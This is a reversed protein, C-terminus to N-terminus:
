QVLGEVLETNFYRAYRSWELTQDAAAVIISGTKSTSGTTMLDIGDGLGAFRTPESSPQAAASGLPKERKFATISYDYDAIGISFSFSFIAEGYMQGGEARGLRVYLSTAFHFIWISASGGAFFTGYIETTKKGDAKLVRVFVGAQIRCQAALPGFGIGAGGGYEFSAEFGRVGDAAAYISFYGSGVFPLVGMTFPSLRRGLSVKFLSEENGFPLEASVNLTVNFFSTVGVGITGLNLSYGAEIGAGRTMPQVFVGNGDKPSLYSQLQQAFKLDKGIEFDQYVVDFRASSNSRVSFAAGGFKLRLADIIDGILFIDFPGVHASASFDTKQKLLDVSGRLLIGFEGGVKPQFIARPSSAKDVISNFDYSFNIKTPILAAIADEIQDRFAGLDIAAFVEGRLLDKAIGGAQDIIVLPAAQSSSWGQFMVAVRRRLAPRKGADIGKFGVAEAVVKREQDLRDCAILTDLPLAPNEVNCADLPDNESPALGLIPQVLLARRVFPALAQIASANDALEKRYLLVKDYADAITKFVPELRNEVVIKIQEPVGEIRQKLGRLAKLAGAEAGRIKDAAERYGGGSAVFDSLKEGNKSLEADRLGILTTPLPEKLALDVYALLVDRVKDLAARLNASEPTLPLGFKLSAAALKDAADAVAAVGDATGSVSVGILKLAFNVVEVLHAVIKKEADEAEKLRKRLEDLDMSSPIVEKVAAFVTALVVGGTLIDRQEDAFKSLRALISRLRGGISEGLRRLTLLNTSVAEVSIPDPKGFESALQRAAVTADVIDAYLRRLADILVVGFDGGGEPGAVLERLKATFTLLKASTFQPKGFDNANKDIEKDNDRIERTVQNLTDDGGGAFDILIKLAEGINLLLANSAIVVNNDLIPPELFPPTGTKLNAVAAIERLLIAKAEPTQGILPSLVAEHVSKVAASLPTEIEGKLKDTVEVVNVGLVEQAFAGSAQLVAKADGDKVAKAVARGNEIATRIRDLGALLAQLQAPALGGVFEALASELQAQFRDAALVLAVVANDILTELDKTAGAKAKTAADQIEIKAAAILPLTRTKVDAVYARLAAEIAVKIDTNKIVSLIISKVVAELGDRTAAEVEAQLKTAITSVTDRFDKVAQRTDGSLLDAVRELDPPLVGLPLYKGVESAKDAAIGSAINKYIWATVVGAAEDAKENILAEKFDQLQGVIAVLEDLVKTLAIIRQRLSGIVAQEFRAIPDAALSALRRILERAAAHVAALKPVLALTDETALAENLATEVKSLAGTGQGGKVVSPGDIEPYLDKLSIPKVDQSPTTPLDISKAKLDDDLKTWKERLLAVVDRLPTLVRTRLDNAISGAQEDATRAAASGFELVEKLAPISELSLGLLWMMDKLKITGLLKADLSFYSQIQALLAAAKAIEDATKDKDQDEAPSTPVVGDENTEPKKPEPRPVADNFYPALSVLKIKGALDVSPPKGKDPGATTDPNAIINPGSARWTFEDGGLPGDIGVGVYYSEPRAIGGSRDGNDDMTHHLPEDRVDLFIQKPNAKKGEPAPHGRPTADGKLGYLVYHGDFQVDAPKKGSGSMREVAGLRITAYELSPYFPPQSAGELVGTTAYNDAGELEGTWSETTPALLRGHVRIHMTETEFQAEGAKSSPVYDIKHGQLILTRYGKLRDALDKDEVTEALNGNYLDAAKKLAKRSTAAVNDLFIMPLATPAGDIAIEFKCLGHETIDTRPWFALGPADGLFVRGNLAIPSTENAPPGITFTPDILDPTKDALLRVHKACWMRGAHPQGLAGYLKDRDAMRLFMRQRLIAKIGQEPTRLFVRETLKVFSAKHGLPLLYGKYVVETRVDRGLVIDQQLTDISFGEFIKRGYVDDLGASPKFATDHVFSGGLATLSLAKVNLPVPRHMAQDDDADLLSFAEGPEIQGSNTILAGGSEVNTADNPDKLERKGIVPLGYTSSLLVLQHRDYADLTTRFLSYEDSPPVSVLGARECLWRILRFKHKQREAAPDPCVYDKEGLDDTIGAATLKGSEMQEPGIFWPAYPGRPPAGQGPLRKGGPSRQGGLATLRLDPSAVARLSPTAASTDLRVSWLDRPQGSMATKGSLGVGEELGVPPPVAPVPVAEGKKSTYIEAPVRRNTRWVADQATSLVLRAPIEIATELDLPEGPFPRDDGNEQKATRESRLSARVETMRADGTTPAETFGQFRMLAQDSPSTTRSGPPPLLGSPLTEFLKRARKTVAPEFRSWDTLAEFTFPIPLFRSSGTGPRAPGDGSSKEMGAERADVGPAPECDIRFALRTRGSLRAGLVDPIRDKGLAFDVFKEVILKQLPEIAGYGDFRDIDTLFESLYGNTVPKLKDNPLAFKLKKEIEVPSMGRISLAVYTAIQDRWFDRFVGYLPELAELNAENRKANAFARDKKEPDTPKPDVVPLLKGLKNLSDASKKVRELMALVEYRVADPGVSSMLGRAIAMGDPDLGFPGIYIRQDKPLNGTASAFANAMQKFPRPADKKDEEEKLVKEDRIRGRIVVREDADKAKALEQLIQEKTTKATGDPLPPPDPRFIAEELVHQPDFEAVLMPRKDDVAGDDGIRVRADDRAPVIRPGPAHVLTLDRFRLRLKMLDYDRGCSLTAGSLDFAALRPGQGVSPGVWVFSSAIPRPYEGGILEAIETGDEYTLRLDANKFALRSWSADPLAAPAALLTVDFQVRRLGGPASADPQRDHLVYLTADPAGSRDGSAMQLFRALEDKGRGTTQPAAQGECRDAAETGVTVASPQGAPAASDLKDAASGGGKEVGTKADSTKADGDTKAKSPTKVATAPKDIRLRGVPSLIDGRSAKGRTDVSKHFFPGVGESDGWLVDRVAPSAGAQPMRTQTLTFASGAIGDAVVAAGDAVALVGAGASVACVVQLRSPVTPATGVIADLRLACADYPRFRVHHSAGDGIEIMGAANSIELTGGAASGAFYIIAADPNTGPAKTQGAAAEKGGTATAQGGGTAATTEALTKRWAFSFDRFSVKGDHAILRATDLGSIKWVLNRDLMVRFVGSSPRASGILGSFMAKLTGDVRGSIITEFPEPPSNGDLDRADVRPEAPMGLFAQFEAPKSSIIPDIGGSSQLWLDTLYAIQWRTGPRTFVFGVFNRKKYPDGPKPPKPAPPAAGKFRLGYQVHRVYVSRQPAPSPACIGNPAPEDMDFFADPGFAAAPIEWRCAMTRVGADADDGCGNDVQQPVVKIETVALTSLDPSLEFELDYWANESARAAGSYLIPSAALGGLLARRTLRPNIISQLGLPHSEADFVGRVGRGPGKSKASM